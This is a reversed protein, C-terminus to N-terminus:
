KHVDVGHVARDRGLLDGSGMTSVEFCLAPVAHIVPLVPNVLLVAPNEAEDLSRVGVGRDGYVALRVAQDGVRDKRDGFATSGARCSGLRFDGMGPWTMTAPCPCTQSCAALSRPM